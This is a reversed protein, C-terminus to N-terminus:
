VGFSLIYRYSIHEPRCFFLPLAAFDLAFITLYHVFMFQSEMALLSPSRAHMHNSYSCSM